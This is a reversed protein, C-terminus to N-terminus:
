AKPVLQRVAAVVQGFVTEISGTPFEIYQEGAQNTPVEVGRERLVFTRGEGLGAAFFGCEHIVNPRPRFKGDELKDEGTYVLIACGSKAKMTELISRISKGARSDSEFFEVQFKQQFLLHDRLLKWDDKRGHGIFIIPNAPFSEPENLAADLKAAIETILEKTGGVKYEFLTSSRMIQLNSDDAASINILQTEYRDFLAAVDSLSNYTVASSDDSLTYAQLAERRPRPTLSLFHGVIKHLSAFTLRRYLYRRKLSEM